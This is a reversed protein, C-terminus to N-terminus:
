AETRVFGMPSVFKAAFCPKHYCINFSAFFSPSHPCVHIVGDKLTSLITLWVSILVLMPRHYCDLIVSFPKDGLTFFFYLCFSSTIAPGTDISVM